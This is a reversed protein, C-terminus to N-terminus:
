KYIKVGADISSSVDKECYIMIDEIKGDWYYEHVDSGNIEDKPSQVGLEYCMEDFTYAWAFKGKWDESLDTIRMEWPKKDYMYIIEAPEVGYKHLKHLVWPIDFHIIRFGSLNFNKTEIKKLMDNFQIVINSESDDYLSKIHKTGDNSIYGFSICVIKGYTPIIGARDTYASHVSDYEKDWKYRKYRGEFLSAGKENMAKFTDFDKYEGVTEIDFMFLDVM